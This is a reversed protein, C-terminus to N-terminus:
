HKPRKVNKLGVKLSVDLNNIIQREQIIAIKVNSMINEQIIYNNVLVYGKM